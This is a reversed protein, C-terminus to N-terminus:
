EFCILWVTVAEELMNELKEATARNVKLEEKMGIVELQKREQELPIL